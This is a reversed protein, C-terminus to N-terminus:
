PQAQRIAQANHKFRRQTEELYADMALMTEPAVTTIPVQNPAQYTLLARQLQTRETQAVSARIAFLHMPVSATEAVIRIQLWDSERIQNIGARTIIAMDAQHTLLANVASGFSPTELATYDRGALLHHQALWHEAAISVLRLRDPMALTKGKINEPVLDPDQKRALLLVQTDPAFRALPQWGKERQALRALHGPVVVMEYDGALMRQTFTRIDKTTVVRVPRNLEQRLHTALAQYEAILPRAPQYPPLGILLEKGLAYAPVSTLLFSLLGLWITLLRLM